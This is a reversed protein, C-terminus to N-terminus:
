TQTSPKVNLRRKYLASSCALWCCKLNAGLPINMGGVHPAPMRNAAIQRSQAKEVHSRLFRVPQNQWEIDSEAQKVRSWSSSFVIRTKRM